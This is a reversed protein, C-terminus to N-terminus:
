ASSFLLNCMVWIEVDAIRALLAIVLAAVDHLMIPLFKMFCVCPQVCLLLAVWVILSAGRLHHVKGCVDIAM